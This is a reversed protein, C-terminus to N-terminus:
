GAYLQRGSYFFNFPRNRRHQSTVPIAIGTEKAKLVRRMIRSGRTKPQKDVFGIERIVAIPGEGPVETPKPWTIVANNLCIVPSQTDQLEPNM